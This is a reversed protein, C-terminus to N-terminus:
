KEEDESPTDYNIDDETDDDDSEETNDLETDYNIDNQPNGDDNDVDHRTEVHTSSINNNSHLHRTNQANTQDQARGEMLLRNEQELAGNRRQENALLHEMNQRLLEMENTKAQLLSKQTEVMEIIFQNATSLNKNEGNLSVTADEKSKLLQELSTNSAKLRDIEINAQTKNQELTAKEHNLTEIKQTQTLSTTRHIRNENELSSIKNDKEKLQYESTVKEQKLSQNETQLTTNKGDKEKVQRELGNIKLKLKQNERQLSNIKNDNTKIQQQFTVNKNRLLQLDSRLLALQRDREKIQLQLDSEEQKISPLGKTQSISTSGEQLQTQKKLEENHTVSNNVPKTYRQKSTTLLIPVDKWANQGGGTLKYTINLDVLAEMEQQTKDQKEELKKKEADLIASTENIL